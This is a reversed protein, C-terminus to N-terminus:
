DFGFTVGAAFGSSAVDYTFGGNTYDVDVHRYGVLVNFADTVRYGAIALLQWSLRSGVDFGGADGRGQVFWRSGLDLVAIVGLVPDVWDQTDSAGTAPLVGATLDLSSRLRWYRGGALLDVTVPGEPLVRYRAALELMLQRVELEASGFLPGPTAGQNSLKMYLVEFGAGWSGRRAGAGLMVAGDLNEIIESFGVDVDVTRDLVGVEGQLGAAWLYPTLEFTWAPAEGAPAPDGGGAEQGEAARPRASGAALTAALLL